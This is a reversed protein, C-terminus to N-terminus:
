DGQRGPELRGPEVHQAKAKFRRRLIEMGQSYEAPPMGSPYETNSWEKAPDFSLVDSVFKDMWQSPIIKVVQEVNSEDVYCPLHLLTGTYSLLGREVFNKVHNFDKFQM